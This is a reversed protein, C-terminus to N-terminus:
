EWPRLDVVAVVEGSEEGLLVVMDRHAAKLPLWRGAQPYARVVEDVDAADNYKELVSIPKGASKLSMAAMGLPRYLNPRQSIDIGALASEFLLDNREDLGEPEAVSVWEPGLWSPSKYDAKAENIKREDIENNRVLSFHDDVFVLWVPRGEAVAHLGYIMACLQLACIVSLDMVLTKKGPKYVLLTLFPGLVVDIAVLMLFIQTVGVASHLPSPYWVLFVLFIVLLALFVSVLLHIAFAKIRPNLM